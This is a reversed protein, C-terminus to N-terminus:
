LTRLRTGKQAQPLTCALRWLALQGVYLHYLHALQLFTVRHQVSCLYLTLVRHQANTTNSVYECPQPRGNAAYSRGNTKYRLVVYPAKLAQYLLRKGILHKHAAFYAVAALSPYLRHCYPERYADTTRLTDAM